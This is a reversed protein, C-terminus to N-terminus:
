LLEILEYGRGPIFNLNGTWPLQVKIVKIKIEINYQNDVFEIIKPISIGSINFFKEYKIKVASQNLSNIQDVSFIKRKKCDLRYSLPIGNLQCDFVLKDEICNGAKAECKKDIILDGFILPIFSQSFGYKRELYGSTGSYLKKNIRDNMRISDGSIFIRAGEIGTRSRLSILYKDPKEFKINAIFTNSEETTKVTIEAKQIFFGNNTINQNETNEVISGTLNKDTNEYVTKRSNRFVSCGNIILGCFFIFAIKRL